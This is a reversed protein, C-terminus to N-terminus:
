HNGKLRSGPVPERLGCRAGLKASGEITIDDYGPVKVKVPVNDAEDAQIAELIGWILDMDRKM